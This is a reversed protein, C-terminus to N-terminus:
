DLGGFGGLVANPAIPGILEMNTKRSEECM